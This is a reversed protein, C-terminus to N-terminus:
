RRDREPRGSRWTGLAVDEAGERKESRHSPRMARAEKVRFIAWSNKGVDMEPEDPNEISLLFPRGSQYRGERAKDYFSGGDSLRM